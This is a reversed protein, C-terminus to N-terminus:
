RRVVPVADDRDCIERTVEDQSAYVDKLGHSIIISRVEVPHWGRRIKQTQKRKFWIRRVSGVNLGVEERRL